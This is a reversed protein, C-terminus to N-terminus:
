PPRSSGSTSRRSRSRAATPPPPSPRVPAKTARIARLSRDEAAAAPLELQLRAARRVGRPQSRRHRRRDAPRSPAVHSPGKRSWHAHARLTSRGSPKSSRPSPPKGWPHRHRRGPRNGLDPPDCLARRIAARSACCAACAGPRGRSRRSSRSSRCAHRQVSCATAAPGASGARSSAPRRCSASSGPSSRTGPGGDARRDGDAGRSTPSEGRAPRARPDYESERDLELRM